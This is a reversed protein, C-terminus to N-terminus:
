LQVRLTATQQRNAPTAFFVVTRLVIMAVRTPGYSVSRLRSTHGASRVAAPNSGDENIRELANTTRLAKWQLQPIPPFHVTQAVLEPPKGIVPVIECFPLDHSRVHVVKGPIPQALLSTEMLVACLAAVIARLRWKGLTGVPDRSTREMKEGERIENLVSRYLGLPLAAIHSKPGISRGTNGRSARCRALKISMQPRTSM